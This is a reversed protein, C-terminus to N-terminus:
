IYYVQAHDYSLKIASNIVTRGFWEEVVKFFMKM